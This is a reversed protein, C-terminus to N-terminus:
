RKSAQMSVFKIYPGNAFMSVIPGVRGMFSYNALM